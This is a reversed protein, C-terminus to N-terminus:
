SNKRAEEPAEKNLRNLTMAVKGVRKVAVSSKSLLVPIDAKSFVPQGSADIACAVLLHASLTADDYKAPLGKTFEEHEEVTLMRCRIGADEGWEPVPVDEAKRDDVAKIDALSLLRM